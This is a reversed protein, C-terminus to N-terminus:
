DCFHEDNWAAEDDMKAVPAKIPGLGVADRMQNLFEYDGRTLRDIDKYAIVEMLGRSMDDFVHHVGKGTTFLIYRTKYAMGTSIATAMAHMMFNPLRAGDNATFVKNNNMTTKVQIHVPSGCEAKVLRNKRLVKDSISTGHADIGLDAESSGVSSVSVVDQVQWLIGYRRMFHECLWEGFLGLYMPSWQDAGYDKYNALDTRRKAEETHAQEYVAKLMDKLRPSRLVPEFDICVNQFISAM